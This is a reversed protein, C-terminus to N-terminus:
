VGNSKGPSLFDSVHELGEAVFDEAQPTVIFSIGEAKKCPARPRQWPQKAKLGDTNIPQGRWRWEGKVGGARWRAALRKTPDTIWRVRWYVEGGETADGTAKDPVLIALVYPIKASARTQAKKVEDASWYFESRGMHKVEIDLVDKGALRVVLDTEGGGQRNHREVKYQGGIKKQLEQFFWDEAERGRERPDQTRPKSPRPGPHPRPSVLGPRIGGPKPMPPANGGPGDVEPIPPPGAPPHVPVEVPTSPPLSKPPPPAPDPTPVADTDPAPEHESDTTGGAAPAPESHRAESREPGPEAAGGPGAEPATASGAVTTVSGEDGGGPATPPTTEPVDSRVWRRWAQDSLGKQRLFAKGDTLQGGREIAELLRVLGDEFAKQTGAVQKLGAAFHDWLGDDGGIFLDQGEEWHFDLATDCTLVSGELTVAVKLPCHVHVQEPWHRNLRNAAAEGVTDEVWALVLPRAGQVLQLREEGLRSPTDSVVKVEALQSLRRQDCGLLPGLRLAEKEGGLLVAQGSDLLTQRLSAFRPDDIIVLEDPPRFALCTGRSQCPLPLIRASPPAEWQQHSLAHLLSEITTADVDTLEGKSLASLWGLWQDQVFDKHNEKAGFDIAFIELQRKEQADRNYLDLRPLWKRWDSCPQSDILIDAFSAAGEPFLPSGEVRFVCAHQIQWAVFGQKGLLPLNFISRGLPGRAAIKIADRGKAQAIGWLEFLAQVREAVDRFACVYDEVGEIGWASLVAWNAVSPKGKEYYGEELYSRGVDAWYRSWGRDALSDAPLMTFGNLWGYRDKDYDQKSHKIWKPQWSVGIYRLIPALHMGGPLEEPGALIFRTRPTKKVFTEAWANDWAAGAYVREAPQWDGAQTPVRIQQSLTERLANDFVDSSEEAHCGIAQLAALVNSGNDKWWDAYKEWVAPLLAYKLLADAKHDHLLPQQDNGPNRFAEIPEFDWVKLNGDVEKAKMAKLFTTALCDLPIIEPLALAPQRAQFLPTQDAISRWRGDQVQWIKLSKTIEQFSEQEQRRTYTDKFRRWDIDRYAAALLAHAQCADDVNDPQFGSM